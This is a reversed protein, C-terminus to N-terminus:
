CRGVQAGLRARVAELEDLLAMLFSSNAPTRPYGRNSLQVAYFLCYYAMVADKMKLESARQLYPLMFRLDDPIDPLM